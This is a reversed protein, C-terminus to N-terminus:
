QHSSQSRLKVMSWISKVAIIVSGYIVLILGSFQLYDPGVFQFAAGAAMVGIGVVYASRSANIEKDRKEEPAPMIPPISPLPPALVASQGSSAQKLQQVQDWQDWLDKIDKNTIPLSAELAQRMELPLPNHWDMGVTLSSDENGQKAWRISGQLLSPRNLSQDMVMLVAERGKLGEMTWDLPPSPLELIIGTTTINKTVVEVPPIEPEGSSQIIALTLPPIVADSSAAEQIESEHMAPINM